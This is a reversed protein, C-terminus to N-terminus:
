SIQTDSFIPSIREYEVILNFKYPANEKEINEFATYTSQIYTIIYIDIYLIRNTEKTLTYM